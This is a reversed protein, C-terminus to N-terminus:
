RAPDTGLWAEPHGRRAQYEESYYNALQPHITLKFLLGMCPIFLSVAFLGYYIVNLAEARSTREDSSSQNLDQANGLKLLDNMFKSDLGAPNRRQMARGKRLDNLVRLQETFSYPREDYHFKGMVIHKEDPSANSVRVLWAQLDSLRQEINDEAQTLEGRKFRWMDNAESASDGTAAVNAELQPIDRRLADRQKEAGESKGAAARYRKQAQELAQVDENSRGANQLQKADAAGYKRKAAELELKRDRVARRLQPLEAELAQIERRTRELKSKAATANSHAAKLETESNAVEQHMSATQGEQGSLENKLRQFALARSVIEEWAREEHVRDAIDHHFVLLDVAQSTALASAVIVLLRLDVVLWRKLRAAMGRKTWDMTIVGQEFSLVIAAFMLAIITAFVSTFNTTLEGRNLISNWILTWAWLDFVFVVTLVLAAREIESRVLGTLNNGGYSYLRYSTALRELVSRPFPGQRVSVYLKPAIDDVPEGPQNSELSSAKEHEDAPPPPDMEGYDLLAGVSGSTDREPTLEINM